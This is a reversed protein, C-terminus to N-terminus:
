EGEKRSVIKIDEGLRDQHVVSFSMADHLHEIGAGSVPTLAKKGGILKPAIYTIVEDVNRSRVFSDAVTGGGEVLLSSIKREALEKLFVDIDVTEESQRLIEVHSPAPFEKLQKNTVTKGAVIWVPSTDDQMLKANRPMRLHNDLVIRVPHSGGEELRATLMPDDTLVTNIGVLIAGSRHRYWHGDKRASEGTIWQSEGTSTAIKGDLSMASKLRVYPKGKSIYHFFPRNIADAEERCVDTVVEVGGDKMKKMGKGAVEPNPDFSAIVARKVGAAVIADACPPTRGYHSCPELTVYIEADEAHTGAMNLAHVEAHPEGAKVHVGTGVIQNNKVVVAAVAPNPDTQGMTKQAMEVALEMYYRDRNM